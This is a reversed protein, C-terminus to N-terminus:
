AASCRDAIPTRANTTGTGFRAQLAPELARIGTALVTALPVGGLRAYARTARAASAFGSAALLRALAAARNEEAVNVAAAGRVLRGWLLLQRPVPWGHRSARRDFTSASVGIMVALTAVTDPAEAAGIIADFLRAIPRPLGAVLASRENAIAFVAAVPATLRTLMLGLDDEPLYAFHEAGARAAHFLDRGTAKDTCAVVLPTRPYRQRLIRVVPGIPGMADSHLEVVIAAPREHGDGQLRATLADIDCVVELAVDPGNTLYSVFVETSRATALLTLTM